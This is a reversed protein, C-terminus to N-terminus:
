TAALQPLNLIINELFFRMQGRNRQQDKPCLMAGAEARAAAQLQGLQGWGPAAPLAAYARGGALAAGEGEFLTQM